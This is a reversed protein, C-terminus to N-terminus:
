PKPQPSLFLDKRGAVRFAGVYGQRESIQNTDVATFRFSLVVDDGLWEIRSQPNCSPLGAAGDAM